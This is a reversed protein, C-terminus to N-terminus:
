ADVAAGARGPQRLDWILGVRALQRLVFYTIDIEWWAVGHKARDPFRHHNNHWGEGLTLISLLWNNRSDDPSDYRRSGWVHALSNITCTAHFVAVTSILFGWVLMQLGDTGYQPAVHALLSGLGFMATATVLPVFYDFRDLFVLEPFRMLDRVLRKRTNFNSRNVIWGIHSHWLGSQRPSHIDDETDAHQHHHRHNAAWWLPGRQANSNALLAAVFQFARSTRFSRHSFYRHYFGTIAFMRVLYMAACVAVAIPSVGVWLAALCGLHVAVFPVIRVWDIGPRRDVADDGDAWSDVLRRLSLTFHRM